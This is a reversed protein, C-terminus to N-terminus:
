KVTIQVSYFPDVGMNGGLHWQDKPIVFYDGAKWEVVPQNDYEFYHGTKWDELMVLYRWSKGEGYQKRLMYHKDVHLPITQGPPINIVTIVSHDFNQPVLHKLEHVWAPCDADFMQWISSNEKTYYKKIQPLQQYCQFYDNFELAELQMNDPLQINGKDIM